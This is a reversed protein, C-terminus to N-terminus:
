KCSELDVGPLAPREAKLKEESKEAESRRGNIGGGIAM